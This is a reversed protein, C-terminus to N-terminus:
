RRLGARNTFTIKCPAFFPFLVPFMHNIATFTTSSPLSKIKLNHIISNPSKSWLSARKKAKSLVKNVLSLLSKKSQRRVQQQSAIFRKSELYGCRKDNRPVLFRMVLMTRTSFLKEKGVHWINKKGHKTKCSSRKSWLCARKKAKSLVKSVLSLLSKKSQRRVQQQCAIFRKSGLYGCRKDNRPVLFRMVLM